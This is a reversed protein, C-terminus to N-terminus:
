LDYHRTTGSTTGRVRLVLRPEEHHIMTGRTAGRLVVRLVRLVVQM